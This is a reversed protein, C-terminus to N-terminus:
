PRVNIAREWALAGLEAALEAPDWLRPPLEAKVLRRSRHHPKYTWKPLLGLLQWAEAGVDSCFRGGGDLDLDLPSGLAGASDYPLGEIRAAWTILKGSAAGDAPRRPPVATAVGHFGAIKEAPEKIEVGAPFTSEVLVWRHPPREQGGDASDRGTVAAGSFVPLLVAVHVYEWWGTRWWGLHTLLQALAIRLNWRWHTLKRTFTVMRRGVPAACALRWVDALTLRPFFLLLPDREKALASHL